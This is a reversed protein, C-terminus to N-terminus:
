HFSICERARYASFACILNWNMMRWYCLHCCSLLSAGTLESWAPSPWPSRSYSQALIRPESPWSAGLPSHFWFNCNNLSQSDWAISRTSWSYDNSHLVNGTSMSCCSQWAHACSLRLSPASERLFGGHRWSPRPPLSPWTLRLLPVGCLNCNCVIPSGFSTSHISGLQRGKSPRMCTHHSCFSHVQPRLPIPSTQWPPWGRNVTFYNRWSCQWSMSQSLVCWEFSWLWCIWCSNVLFHM